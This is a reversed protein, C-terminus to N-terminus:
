AKIHNWYAHVTLQAKIPKFHSDCTLSWIPESYLTERPNFFRSILNVISQNHWFHPSFKVKAGSRGVLVEFIMEQNEKQEPLGSRRSVSASFTLLSVFSVEGTYSM